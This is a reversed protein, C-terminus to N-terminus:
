HQHSNHVYIKVFRSSFVDRFTCALSVHLHQLELAQSVLGMILIHPDRLPLLNLQQCVKCAWNMVIHRYGELRQCDRFAVSALSGCVPKDPLFTLLPVRNPSPFPLLTSLLFSDPSTSVQWLDKQRRSQWRPGKVQCNCRSLLPNMFRFIKFSLWMIQGYSAIQFASKSGVVNWLFTISSFTLQYKQFDSDGRFPIHIWSKAYYIIM